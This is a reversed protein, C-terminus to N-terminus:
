RWASPIQELCRAWRQLRGEEEPAIIPLLSPPAGPTLSSIRSLAENRRRVAPVSSERMEDYNAAASVIKEGALRALRDEADCWFMKWRQPSNSKPPLEVFGNSREFYWRNVPNDARSKWVLDRGTGFGGRGGNDNLADLLGLGHVEDRLAGWLFDVAGSGQLKPLVAFKDLYAIPEAVAPDEGPAYERTVIAIGDYAGTVIVFELRETLRAFYAEANLERGFSQELLAALAAHDVDEWREIMRVALGARVITPMHRMDRRSALLRQPLSPSHAAKNTVLNAVLSRPSRHTVMVGSSTSPMFALCDRIMDLNALATPHTDSWVFSNRISSYESALNISLHPNGGRAHSPVGGERSIALLRVPMLDFPGLRTALGAASTKDGTASAHAMARSLAVMVDDAQVCVCRLANGSHTRAEDYLAMPLVIPMQGNALAAYVGKLSADPVLPTRKSISAHNDATAVNGESEAGVRLVAHPFPCPDAGSAVLMDSLRWLEREMVVRQGYEERGIREAREQTLREAPGLWPALEETDHDVLVGHEDFQSLPSHWSENDLVIVSFLGLQKLYNLGEAISQLQRNSFPGQVKVLATHSEIHTGPEAEAALDAGQEAQDYPFVSNEATRGAPAAAAAGALVRDVDRKSRLTDTLKDSQPPHVGFASLYPRSDRLSPRAQLIELIVRQVRKSM